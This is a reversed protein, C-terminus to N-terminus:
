PQDRFAIVLLGVTRIILYYILRNTVLRPRKKLADMISLQVMPRRIRNRASRDNSGTGASMEM